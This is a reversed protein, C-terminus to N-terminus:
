RATARIAAHRAADLHHARGPHRGADAHEAPLLDDAQRLDAAAAEIRSADRSLPAHRFRRGPDTRQAHAPLFEIRFRGFEKLLKEMRLASGGWTEVRADKRM